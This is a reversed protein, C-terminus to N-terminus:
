MVPAISFNIKLGCKRIFFNKHEKLIINFIVFSSLLVDFIGLGFCSMRLNHFGLSLTKRLCLSLNVGHVVADHKSFVFAINSFEM